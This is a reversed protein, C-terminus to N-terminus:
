LMSRHRPHDTNTLTETLELQKCGGPMLGFSLGFSQGHPRSKVKYLQEPTPIRCTGKNEFLIGYRVNKKQRTLSQEALSDHFCESRTAFKKTNKIICFAFNQSHASLKTELTTLLRVLNLFSLWWTSFSPLHLHCFIDMLGILVPPPPTNEM